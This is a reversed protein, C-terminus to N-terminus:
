GGIRREILLRLSDIASAYPDLVVAAAPMGAVILPHLLYLAILIAFVFVTWVFARRFGGSKNRALEDEHAERMERDRRRPEGGDSRLSADLEDVDPVLSKRRSQGSETEDAPVPANEELLSLDSSEADEELGFGQKVRARGRGTKAKPRSLGM